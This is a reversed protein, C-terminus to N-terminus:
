HVRELPRSGFVVLSPPEARMTGPDVRLQRDDVAVDAEFLVSPYCFTGREALLSLRPPEYRVSGTCVSRASGDRLLEFRERDLRLIYTGALEAAFDALGRRLEPDDWVAGEFYSELGAVMTSPLEEASWTIRFEGQPIGADPPRARLEDLTPCERDAYYTTCESDTFGHTLSSRVLQV